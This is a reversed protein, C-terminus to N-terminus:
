LEHAIISFADDLVAASIAGYRKKLKDKLDNSCFPQTEVQQPFVDGTLKAKLLKYRIM